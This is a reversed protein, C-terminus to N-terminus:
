NDIQKKNSLIKKRATLLNGVIKGRNFFQSFSVRKIRLIKEMRQGKGWINKPIEGGRRREGKKRGLQNRNPSPRPPLVIEAATRLWVCVWFCFFSFFTFNKLKKRMRGKKLASRKMRRYPGFILSEQERLFVEIGGGQGMGGLFSKKEEYFIINM